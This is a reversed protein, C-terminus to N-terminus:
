NTGFLPFRKHSRLFFDTINGDNGMNVMALGCQHIFHELLAADVPLILGRHVPDHVGAIQLPLTADGNEGLIGGNVIFSIFDVDHIGRAM